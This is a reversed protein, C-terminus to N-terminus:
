FIDCKEQGATRAGRGRFQTSYRYPWSNHRVHHRRTPLCSNLKCCINSSAGWREGWKTFTEWEREPPMDLLKGIVSFGRPGPPLPTVQSRKGLMLRTFIFLGIIGLCVDFWHITSEAM